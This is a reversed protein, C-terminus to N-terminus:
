GVLILAHALTHCVGLSASIAPALIIYSYAFHSYFLVSFHSFLHFHVFSYILCDHWFSYNIIKGFSLSSSFHFIHLFLIVYLLLLLLLILMVITAISDSYSYYIFNEKSEKKQEFITYGKFLETTTSHVIVNARCSLVALHNKKAQDPKYLIRQNYIKPSTFDQTLGVVYLGAVAVFHFFFGWDTYYVEVIFHTHAYLLFM